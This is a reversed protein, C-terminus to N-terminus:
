FNYSRLFLEVFKQCSVATEGRFLTGLTNNNSIVRIPLFDTNLAQAVVGSGASEMEECCAGTTRRLFSITQQDMNWQDFSAIIGKVVKGETYVANLSAARILAQSSASFYSPQPLFMRQFDSEGELREMDIYYKTGTKTTHLANGNFYKEGLVIDGYGLQEEYAGATGQNIILTPSFTTIGLATAAGALATGIGTKSLVINQGGLAGQWFTFAGKQIKRSAELASLLYSLEVDMAGQVLICPNKERDAM